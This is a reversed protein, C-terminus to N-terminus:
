NGRIIKPEPLKKAPEPEKAEPNTLMNKLKEGLDQKFQLYAIVREDGLLSQMKDLEEVSVGNFDVLTKRYDKLNKKREAATKSDSLSKLQSSLNQNLNNKKQNLEKLIQSFKKEEKATLKLEDSMKWILFEELRSKSQTQAHAVFPLGLFIIVLYASLKM